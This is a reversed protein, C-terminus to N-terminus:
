GIQGCVRVVRSLYPEREDPSCARLIFIASQRVQQTRLHVPVHVPPYTPAQTHMHTHMYTHMHTHM